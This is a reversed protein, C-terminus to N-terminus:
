STSKTHEKTAPFPLAQLKQPDNDNRQSVSVLERGEPLVYLFQPKNHM